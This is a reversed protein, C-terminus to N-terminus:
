TPKKVKDRIFARVNDPMPVAPHMPAIEKIKNISALRDSESKFRSTIQVPMFVDGSTQYHKKLCEAAFEYTCRSDVIELWASAM